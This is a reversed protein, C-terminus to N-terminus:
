ASPPPGIRSPTASPLRKAGGGGGQGASPDLTRTAIERIALVAHMADTHAHLPTPSSAAGVEDVRELLGVGTPDAELDLCPRGRM